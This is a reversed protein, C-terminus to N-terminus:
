NLVFTLWILLHVCSPLGTNNKCLHSSVMIPVKHMKFTHSLVLIMTNLNLNNLVLPKATVEM